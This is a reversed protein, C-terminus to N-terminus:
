QYQLHVIFAMKFLGKDITNPPNSVDWLRGLSGKTCRHYILNRHRTVIVSTTGSGGNRGGKGDEENSAIELDGIDWSCYTVIEM